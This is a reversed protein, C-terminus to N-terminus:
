RFDCNYFNKPTATFVYTGIYIKPDLHVHHSHVSVRVPCSGRQTCARAGTTLLQINHYYDYSNLTLQLKMRMRLYLKAMVVGVKNM